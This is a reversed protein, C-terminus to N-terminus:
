ARSEVHAIMMWRTSSRSFTVNESILSFTDSSSFCLADDLPRPNSFVVFDMTTSRASDNDAVM